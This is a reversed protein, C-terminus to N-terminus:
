KKKFGAFVIDIEPTSPSIQSVEGGQENEANKHISVLSNFTLPTDGKLLKEIQVQDLGLVYRIGYAKTNGGPGKVDSVVLLYIRTYGLRCLGQPYSPGCRIPQFYQQSWRYTELVDAVLKLEDDPSTLDPIALAIQVLKGSGDSNEGISTDVVQLKTLKPGDIASVNPPEAIGQSFLIAYFAILPVFVFIFLRRVWVHVKNKPKGDWLFKKIRSFIFQAIVAVIFLGILILVPNLLNLM